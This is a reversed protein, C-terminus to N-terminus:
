DTRIFKAIYAGDLADRFPLSMREGIKELAPVEALLAEVVLANEEAELSCTSYVLVGPRKLLPLVARLISLQEHQMRCFEDPRLRWRVDVRRRMVGTNSCPADVLIRDFSNSAILKTPRSGLWDHGLTSAIDVGLRFLNEQLRQLRDAERDVAVIQGRNEMAEAILATKGGPAACADLVREGPQPALEEVALRTSPDQVYCHGAKLAATPFSAGFEVFQEFGPVVEADSYRSQFESSSIRIRNIRAYIAPPENNWECLRSTNLPGFEKQWRQILFEPHSTQIALPQTKAASLLAQQKRLAQRLVANVLGQARKPAVEVTEYVAAHESVGGLLLQYLGLRLIDRVATELKGARLQKIWFDLLFLHRLVGYFLDLAFARDPSRLDATGILRALIRDAPQHTSQWRRLATLAVTRSPSLAM